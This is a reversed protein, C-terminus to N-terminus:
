ALKTSHEKRTRLIVWPFALLMGSGVGDQQEKGGLRSRWGIKLFVRWTVEEREPVQPMAMGVILGPTMQYKKERM